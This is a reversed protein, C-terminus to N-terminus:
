DAWQLEKLYINERIIDYVLIHGIIEIAKKHTYKNNYLDSITSWFKPESNEMLV